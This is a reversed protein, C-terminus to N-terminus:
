QINCLLKPQHFIMLLSRSSCQADLPVLPRGEKFLHHMSTNEYNALIQPSCSSDSHPAPGIDAEGGACRGGEVASGTTIFPTQVHNEHVWSPSLLHLVLRCLSCALWGERGPRCLSGPSRLGSGSGTLRVQLRGGVVTKLRLYCFWM